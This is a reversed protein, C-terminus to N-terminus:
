VDELMDQVIALGHGLKVADQSDAAARKELHSEPSGHGVFVVGDCIGGFAGLMQTLAIVDSEIAFVKLVPQLICAELDFGHPHRVFEAQGILLNLPHIQSLSLKTVVTPLLAPITAACNYHSAPRGCRRRVRIYGVTTSWSLFTEIEV